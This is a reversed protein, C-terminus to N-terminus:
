VHPAVHVEMDSMNSRCPCLKVHSKCIEDFEEAIEPHQAPGHYLRGKLTNFVTAGNFTITVNKLEKWTPVGEQELFNTYHRREPGSRFEEVKPNIPPNRTGIELAPINLFDQGNAKLFKIWGACDYDSFTLELEFMNLCGSVSLILAM